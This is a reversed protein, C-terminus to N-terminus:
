RAADRAKRADRHHDNTGRAMLWAALVLNIAVFAHFDEANVSVLGTPYLVVLSLAAVLGFWGQAQEVIRSSRALTVSWLAVAVAIALQYVDAFTDNVLTNYDYLAELPGRTSPPAATVVAALRPRVFGGFIGSIVASGAGVVAATFALTDLGDVRPTPTRSRLGVLIVPWASVGATHAAYWAHGVPAGYDLLSRGRAPHSLATLLLLATGALVLPGAARTYNVNTYLPISRTNMLM